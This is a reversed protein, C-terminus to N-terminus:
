GCRRAPPGSPTWRDYVADSAPTVEILLRPRVEGALGECYQDVWYLADAIANERTMGEAQCPGLYIRERGKYVDACYVNPNDGPVYVDVRFKMTRRGGMPDNEKGGAFAM